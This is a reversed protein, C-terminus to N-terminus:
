QLFNQVKDSGKKKEQQKKKSIRKSNGPKRQVENSINQKHSLIKMTVGNQYKKTECNDQHRVKQYIM